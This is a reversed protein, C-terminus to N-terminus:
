HLEWLADLVQFADFRKNVDRHVMNDVLREVEVPVEPTLARVKPFPETTVQYM